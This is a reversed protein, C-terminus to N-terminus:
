SWGFLHGLSNRPCLKFITLFYAFISCPTWAFHYIAGSNWYSSIFSSFSLLFEAKLSLFKKQKSKGEKQPCDKDSKWSMRKPVWCWLGIPEVKFNQKTDLTKLKKVRNQWNTFVPCHLELDARVVCFLGFMWLLGYLLIKKYGFLNCYLQHGNTLSSSCVLIWGVPVIRYEM